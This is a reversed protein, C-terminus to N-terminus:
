TQNPIRIPLIDYDGWCMYARNEQITQLTNLEDKSSITRFFLPTKIRSNLFGNKNAIREYPHNKIVQYNIINVDIDNFYDIADRMLMNAADLRDPITLLDVIFGVPYHPLYGNVNLVSYGLIQGAEEVIKLVFNGARHDGYRWNLYERNREIIFDYQDSIDMWLTDIRKDFREVQHVVLGNARSKPKSIYHKLNNVLKVAYFGHKVMWANKLPLNQLHENIDRIRVMNLISHPFQPWSRSISKIVIPNDTLFYSFRVGAASSLKNLLERIGNRIGKRRFDPHVALDGGYSCLYSNEGIKIRILLRHHCGVMKEGSMGVVILGGISNDLYKWRWHDLSSCNLNFRPWGDFVLQLLEVIDSEDGPRYPRIEYDGIL